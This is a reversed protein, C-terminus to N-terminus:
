VLRRGSWLRLDFVWYLYILFNIVPIMAWNLAIGWLYSAHFVDTVIAMGGTAVVFCGANAVLFRVPQKVHEGPKARADPYSVLRHVGYGIPQVACFAIMSAGVPGAAPVFNVLAIVALTFLSAVTCGSIGYRLVREVPHM